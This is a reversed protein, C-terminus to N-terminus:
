AAASRNTEGRAIARIVCAAAVARERAAGSAIVAGGTDFAVWSWGSGTRTIRYGFEAGTDRRM